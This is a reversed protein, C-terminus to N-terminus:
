LLWWLMCLVTVREFVCKVISGQLRAAMLAAEVSRREDAQAWEAAERRGVYVCSETFARTRPCGGHLVGELGAVM